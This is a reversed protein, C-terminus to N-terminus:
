LGTVVLMIGFGAAIEILRDGFDGMFFTGHIQKAFSYWTEDKVVSGLVKSQYPDVAVAIQQGDANVMFVSARDPTRPAVYMAVKGGAISAEAATAQAVVSQPEGSDAVFHKQGLPTEISNGYVQILGTIALMVIFPVVYLGAYFHWRWAARYFASSAAKAAPEARVPAKSM